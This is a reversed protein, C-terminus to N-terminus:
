SIEKCCETYAIQYAENKWYNLGISLYVIRNLLDVRPILQEASIIERVRISQLYLYSIGVLTILVWCSILYIAIPLNM